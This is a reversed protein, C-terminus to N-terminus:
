AKLYIPNSFIWLNDDQYVEIRYAGPERASFELEGIEEEAAVSGNHIVKIKASVPLHVHFTVETDKQVELTEGPGVTKGNAEARFLFDTAIGRSDFAMFTKGTGIAKVIEAETLQNAIVYLTVSELAVSFSEARHKMHADTGSLGAVPHDKLAKDWFSFHEQPIKQISKLESRPDGFVAEMAFDVGGDGHLGDHAFNYVEFGDWGKVDWNKWPNKEGFPHPIIAYGGQSHIWDILKQSSMEETPPGPIGLAILHGDPASIEDGFILLPREPPRMKQYFSLGQMSNHDTVIVFDFNDRTAAEILFELSANSDHSFQTHVHSVGRFVKYPREESAGISSFAFIPIFLVSFIFVRKFRM